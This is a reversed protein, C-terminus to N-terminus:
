CEEESSWSSSESILEYISFKERKKLQIKTRYIKEKINILVAHKPIIDFIPVNALM